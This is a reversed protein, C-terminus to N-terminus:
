VEQISRQMTRELKKAAIAIGCSVITLFLGMAVGGAIDDEGRNFIGIYAVALFILGAFSYACYQITRLAAASQVSYGEMRGMYRALYFAQYLGVFVFVFSFYIYALFPDDFYIESLTTANANVGEITPEYLLAALMGFGLLLIVIQLFVSSIRKM